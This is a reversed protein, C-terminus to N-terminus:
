LTGSSTDTPKEPAPATKTPEAPLASSPQSPNASANGATPQPNAMLPPTIVPPKSAVRSWALAVGLVLGGLLAILGVRTVFLRNTSRVGAVKLEAMALADARARDLATM